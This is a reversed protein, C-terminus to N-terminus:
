DVTFLTTCCLLNVQCYETTRFETDFGTYIREELSLRSQTLTKRLGASLLGFLRLYLLDLEDIMEQDFSRNGIKALLVELILMMIILNNAHTLEFENGLSTEM